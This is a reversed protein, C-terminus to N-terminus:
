HTKARKKRATRKSEKHKLLFAKLELFAQNYKPEKRRKRQLFKLLRDGAKGVYHPNLDIEFYTVMVHPKMNALLFEPSGAGHSGSFYIRM